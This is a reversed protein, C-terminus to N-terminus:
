KNTSTDTGYNPCIKAWFSLTFTRKNGESGPTRNLYANDGPNFRLSNDIEYGTPKGDGGIVPFVM